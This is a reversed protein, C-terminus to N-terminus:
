GIFFRAYLPMMALGDLVHPLVQPLVLEAM